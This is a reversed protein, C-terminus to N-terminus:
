GVKKGMNGLTRHWFTERILPIRAFSPKEHLRDQIGYGYEKNTTKEPCRTMYLGQAKHPCFHKDRACHSCSTASAQMEILDYTYKPPNYISPLAGVTAPRAAGDHAGGGGGGSGLEYDMDTWAEGDQAQVRKQVYAEHKLRERYQECRFHETYEDRKKFDGSLFGKKKEKQRLRYAWGDDFKKGDHLWVHKKEFLTDNTTGEKLPMTGFQKGLFRPDRNTKKEYKDGGLRFSPRGITIYDPISFQNALHKKDNKDFAM